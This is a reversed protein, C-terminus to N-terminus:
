LLCPPWRSPLGAFRLGCISRTFTPLFHRFLKVVLEILPIGDTFGVNTGEPTGLTKVLLPPWRWSDKTFYRQGMVNMAADMGYPPHVRIDTSFIVRRPFMYSTVALGLLLALLYTAVTTRREVAHSNSDTTLLASRSTSPQNETELNM